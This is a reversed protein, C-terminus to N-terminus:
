LFVHLLFLLDVKMHDKFTDEPEDNVINVHMSTTDSVSVVETPM